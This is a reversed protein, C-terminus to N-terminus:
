GGAVLRRHHRKRPVPCLKAYRRHLVQKSIGLEEAISGWSWGLSRANAVAFLELRDLYYRIRRLAPLGVSPTPSGARTAFHAVKAARRRLDDGNASVRGLGDTM